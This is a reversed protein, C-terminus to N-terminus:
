DLIKLDEVAVEFWSSVIQFYFSVSSHLNLILAICVGNYSLLMLMM